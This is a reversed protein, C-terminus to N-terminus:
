CSHYKQFLLDSTACASAIWDIWRRASKPSTVAPVIGDTKIASKKAAHITMMEIPPVVV